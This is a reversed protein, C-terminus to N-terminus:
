DLDLRCEQAHQPCLDPKCQANLHALRGCPYVGFPRNGLPKHCTACPTLEAIRVNRNHYRLLREQTQLNETKALNRALETRKRTTSREKWISRLFDGIDCLRTQLSLLDIAERADVKTAHVALIKLSEERYTTKLAEPTEAPPELYLKLLMMFVQRSPGEPAYVHVCHDEAARYDREQYVLIELAEQHRGIRGFLVALEIQLLKSDEVNSKIRQIVTGAEYLKNTKLMQYLQQRYAGLSGPEMGLDAPERRDQKCQKRYAKLEPIIFDLYALALQTSLEPTKDKFDDIVSRLYLIVFNQITIADKDATVPGAARAPLQAVTSQLAKCIKLHPVSHEVDDRDPTLIIEMALEPDSKLVDPLYKLIVDIDKCAVEMLYAAVETVRAVEDSKTKAHILKLSQDHMERTKYLTILEETMGHQELLQRSKELDCHNNPIRMFAKTLARKSPVELYCQLLMTDAVQLDLEKQEESLEFDQKNNIRRQRVDTLFDALAVMAAEKEKDSLHLDQAPRQQDQVMWYCLKLALKIGNPLRKLKELGADFKKERFLTYGYKQQIDALRTSKADQSVNMLPLANLTLRLQMQQRESEGHKKLFVHALQEALPWNESLCLNEVQIDLPVMAMMVCSHPLAVFVHKDVTMFRPEDTFKITQINSTHLQGEFPKVHFGQSSIGVLFPEYVDATKPMQKWEIGFKHPQSQGQFKRFITNITGQEEVGIIYEHDPLPVVLPEPSTTVNQLVQTRGMNEEDLRMIVYEREKRFSLIIDRDCWEVMAPVDPVAFEKRMTLEHDKVKIYLITKKRIAAIKVLMRERPPLQATSRHHTDASPDNKVQLSAAFATIGKYGSLSSKFRRTALEFCVLTTDVLVLLLNMEKIAKVQRIPSSSTGAHAEITVPALMKCNPQEGYPVPYNEITYIVLKNNSTGFVLKDDYSDFATLEFNTHHLKIFENAEFALHGSSSKAM